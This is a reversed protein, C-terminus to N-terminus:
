DFQILNIAQSILVSIVSVRHGKTLWITKLDTSFDEGSSFNKDTKQEATKTLLFSRSQADRWNSSLNWCFCIFFEFNLHSVHMLQVEGLLAESNPPLDFCYGWNSSFFNEQNSNPVVPKLVDAWLSCYRLHFQLRYWTSDQINSYLTIDIKKM